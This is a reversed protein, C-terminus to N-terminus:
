DICHSKLPVGGCSRITSAYHEYGSDYRIRGHGMSISVNDFGYELFVNVVKKYCLREVPLKGYYIKAVFDKYCPKPWFKEPTVEQPASIHRIRQAQTIEFFSIFADWEHGLSCLM